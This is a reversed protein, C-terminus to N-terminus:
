RRAAAEGAAAAIFAVQCTDWEPKVAGFYYATFPWPPPNIPTTLTVTSGGEASEVVWRTVFGRNGAHDWDVIVRQGQDDARTVSLDLKRHMAAMDYRVRATAGVGSSPTGPTWLGVCDRPLTPGIRPLDVLLALMETPSVSVQASAVIDASPWTTATAPAALLLMTPAVIM